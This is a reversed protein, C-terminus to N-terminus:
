IDHTQLVAYSVAAAQYFKRQRTRGYVQCLAGEEEHPMVSLRGEELARAYGRCKSLRFRSCVCFEHQVPAQGWVTLGTCGFQDALLVHRRDPKESAPYVVFVVAQFSFRVGAAHLGVNRLDCCVRLPQCNAMFRQRNSGPSMQLNPEPLHVVTSAVVPSALVIGDTAASVNQVRDPLYVDAPVVSPMVLDVAESAPSVHRVSSDRASAMVSPPVHDLSVHPDNTIIESSVPAPRICQKKAMSISIDISTVTMLKDYFVFFM